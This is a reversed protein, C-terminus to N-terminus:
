LLIDQYHNSSYISHLVHCSVEVKIGQDKLWNYTENAIIKAKKQGRFKPDVFIMTLTTINKSTKYDVFGIMENNEFVEYRSKENNNCSSVM